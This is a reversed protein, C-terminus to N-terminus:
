LCNAAVIKYLRFSKEEALEFQVLNIAFRQMQDGTQVLIADVVVNPLVYFKLFIRELIKKQLGM